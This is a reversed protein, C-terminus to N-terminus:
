RPAGLHLRARGVAADVLLDTAGLYEAPQTPAVGGVVAAVSRAEALLDDASRAANAGMRVPDVHLGELLETVQGAAALTQRALAQLAAWELHWSGDPREDVALAAATHLQSLVAPGALAARRILVSLVPNVKHPMASSSGRGQGTPEALEAIEPRSLVLVDNAVRGWAATCRVLAEGCRTLPARATHWPSRAPLGLQESAYGALDVARRAADDVGSQEALLTAAALTGAAGGLQSPLRDTAAALDDAADLVGHLWTSAKLGFTIPVAHQTLTRGAMLTGRHDHALRVLATVQGTIEGRLREGTERLCLVIATDLVDQSTLGRHLWRAAAPDDGQLRSRLLGLLPIVPNGGQEAQASLTEVDGSDVLGGLDAAAAPDAVKLDVLAALWASEVTVMARLLAADTFLDGAREAGPWFLDAM